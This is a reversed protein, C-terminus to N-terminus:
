AFDAAGKTASRRLSKIVLQEEVLCALLNGFRLAITEGDLFPQAVRTRFAERYKHIALRLCGLPKIEIDDGAVDVLVVLKKIAKLPLVLPLLQRIRDPVDM